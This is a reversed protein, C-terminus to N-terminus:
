WILRGAGWGVLVAGLGAGWGAGLGAGLGAGAGVFPPELATGTAGLGVGTWLRGAGLYNRVRQDIWWNFHQAFM